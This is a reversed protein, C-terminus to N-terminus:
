PKLENSLIGLGLKSLSSHFVVMVPLNSNLKLELLNSQKVRSWFIIVIPVPFVVIDANLIKRYTAVM